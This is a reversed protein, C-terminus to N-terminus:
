SLVLFPLLDLVKTSVVVTSFALSSQINVLSGLVGFSM